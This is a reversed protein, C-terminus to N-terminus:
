ATEDSKYIIEWAFASHNRPLDTAVYQTDGIERLEIESFDAIHMGMTLGFPACYAASLFSVSLVPAIALGLAKM